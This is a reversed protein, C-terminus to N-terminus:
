IRVEDRELFHVVFDSTADVFRENRLAAILTTVLNERAKDNNLIWLTLGLAQDIVARSKLAEVLLAILSTRTQEHEAVASLFQVSRQVTEDHELIAQLTQITVDKAQAQMTEDGLTRSAMDSLETAVAEKTEQRYSYLTVGLATTAASVGIAWRRSRSELTEHVVRRMEERTDGMDLRRFTSAAAAAAANAHARAAAAVGTSTEDGVPNTSGEVVRAARRSVRIAGHRALSTVSRLLM